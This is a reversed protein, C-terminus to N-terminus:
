TERITASSRLWALSNIAAELHSHLSPIASEILCPSVVGMYRRPQSRASAVKVGKGKRSKSTLKRGKRASRSMSKPRYEEEYDWDEDDDDSSPEYEDDSVDDYRDSASEKKNRGSARKGQKRGASPKAEEEEGEEEEIKIKKQLRKSRRAIGIEVDSDSDDDDEEEKESPANVKNSKATGHSTGVIKVQGDCGEDKHDGEGEEESDCKIVAKVRNRYCSGNLYDSDSDASESAMAPTNDCDLCVAAQFFFPFISDSRREVVRSVQRSM